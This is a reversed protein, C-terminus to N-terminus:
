IRSFRTPHWIQREIVFPDANTELDYDELFALTFQRGVTDTVFRWSAFSTPDISADPSLISAVVAGRPGADNDFVNSLASECGSEPKMLRGYLQVFTENVYPVLERTWAPDKYAAGRQAIRAAVSAYKWIHNVQHVRGTGLPGSYWFGVPEAYRSLVPYGRTEFIDLYEQLKGVQIDYTRLEYIAM